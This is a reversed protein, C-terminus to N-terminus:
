MKPSLCLLSQYFWVNIDCADHARLTSCSLGHVLEECTLYLIETHLFLIGHGHISTSGQSWFTITVSAVIPVHGGDYSM